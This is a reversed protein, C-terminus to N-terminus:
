VLVFGEGSGGFSWLVNSASSVASSSVVGHFGHVVVLCDEDQGAIKIVGSSWSVWLRLVM